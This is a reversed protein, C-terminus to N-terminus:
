RFSQKLSHVFITKYVNIQVQFVRRRRRRFCEDDMSCVVPSLVNVDIETPSGIRGTVRVIFLGLIFFLFFFCSVREGTHNELNNHMRQVYFFIESFTPFYLCYFHSLFTCTYKKFCINCVSIYCNVFFLKVKKYKRNNKCTYQTNTCKNLCGCKKYVTM